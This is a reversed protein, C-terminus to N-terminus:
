AVATVPGILLEARIMRKLKDGYEVGVRKALVEDVEGTGGRALALLLHETGIYSHDLASSEQAALVAVDVSEESFGVNPLMARVPVKLSSRAAFRKLEEVRYHREIVNFAVGLGLRAVGLLLHIPRAVMTNEQLAAIRALALV